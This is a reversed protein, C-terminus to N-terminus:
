PTVTTTILPVKEEKEDSNDRKISLFVRIRRVVGNGGDVRIQVDDQLGYLEMFKQYFEIKGVADQVHNETCYLTYEEFLPPKEIYDEKTGKEFKQLRCWSRVSDQADCINRTFARMSECDKLRKGNEYYARAYETLVTFYHDRLEHLRAIVSSDKEFENCFNFCNLRDEFAEDRFQPMENTGLTLVCRFKENITRKDGAGRIDVTDGGSIKKMLKCNYRETKSMESISALRKGRLGFLESDHVSKNRQQIFIRDNAWCSFDEMIHNHFDLFTSKGGNKKGIFVLIVKQNNEGTMAYAMRSLLCDRFEEDTTKLMSAYYQLIEARIEASVDVIQRSTTKTFYDTKTRPRITGTALEIVHNDALPFLGPLADFHERIFADDQRQTVYPECMRVMRSQFPDSKIWELQEKIVDPDPSQKIYPTLYLSIKTRLHSMSHVNWLCTSTDYFWLEQQSRDYRYDDKIESLLVHAYDEDTVRIDEKPSLDDINIGETMPKHKLRLEFGMQETAHQSLSETLADITFESEDVSSRYVTLGDFCLTGYDIGHRKLFRELHILVINEVECLYYNLATGKHNDYETPDKNRSKNYARDRYHKHQPALFFMTLFMSQRQHFENLEKCTTHPTGGGNIVKLVYEKVQDKDSLTITTKVFAGHQNPLSVEMQTGIWRQLLEDRHQVYERLLPHDFKMQQTLDLLFTPHANVIDIDYYLDKAITHRIRRSIGQLSHNAFRRGASMRASYRYTVVPSKLKAKYFENLISAATREDTPRYQHTAQDLTWFESGLRRYFEAFNDRIIRLAVLDVHETLTLAGKFDDMATTAPSPPNQVHPPPSAM